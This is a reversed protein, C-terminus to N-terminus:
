ADVDFTRMFAASILPSCMDDAGETAEFTTPDSVPTSRTAEAHTARATVM